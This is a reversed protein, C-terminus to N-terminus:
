TSATLLVASDPEEEPKAEFFYDLNITRAERVQLVVFEGPIELWGHGLSKESSLDSEALLSPSMRGIDALPKRAAFGLVLRELNGCKAVSFETVVGTYLFCQNNLQLDVTVVVFSAGEPRLLEYWSATPRKRLIQNLRRGVAWTILTLLTFYLGIQAPYAAISRLGALGLISNTDGALLAIAQAPAPTPLHWWPLVLSLGLLAAIHAVVAGVLAILLAFSFHQDLGTTPANPSQLRSLGFFFSAGPMMLTLAVLVSLSFGM